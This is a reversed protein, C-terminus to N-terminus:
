SFFMSLKLESPPSMEEEFHQLFLSTLDDIRRVNLFYNKLFREVASSKESDRYRFSTALETQYSFLLRDNERGALSHLGSRVRWLFDRGSVFGNFEAEDVLGKRLLERAKPM